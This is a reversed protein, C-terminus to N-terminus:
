STARGYWLTGEGYARSRLPEIGEPWVWQPDRTAREVIVVAQPALGGADQLAALLSRLHDASVAYPPDAFVVDYPGGPSAVAREAALAQVVIGDGGVVDANRRIVAIAQADREVLTVSAAGRSAAELGVAGSGAFLDLLHAGSWSGILSEIASFLGERARDSTPRTQEGSLTFLRRGRARGAIIRPM